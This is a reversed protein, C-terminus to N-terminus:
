SPLAPLGSLSQETQEQCCFEELPVAAVIGVRARVKKEVKRRRMTVGEWTESEKREGEPLDGGLLRRYSPDNVAGKPASDM